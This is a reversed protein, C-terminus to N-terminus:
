CNNIIFSAYAMCDNMALNTNRNEVVSAWKNGPGSM